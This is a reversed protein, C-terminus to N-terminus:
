DRGGGGGGNGGGGPGGGGGGDNGGGGGTGGGGDNGGGGNDGGGGGGSPPPPPPPVYGNSIYLTVPAGDFYSEGTGPDTFAVTGEPYSSNTEPGVIVSFGADEIIRTATSVSLGGVSPVEGGQDLLAGIDPRTFTTDELWQSIVGMSEGWMPGAIGSGSAEFITQGGV